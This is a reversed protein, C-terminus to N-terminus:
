ETPMDTKGKKKRHSAFVWGLVFGVILSFAIVVIRSSQFSWVLFYLEVRAMNQIAFLVLLGGAVAALTYKTKDM